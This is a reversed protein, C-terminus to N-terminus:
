IEGIYILNNGAFELFREVTKFLILDTDMLIYFGLHSTFGSEVLGGSPLMQLTKVDSNEVHKFIVKLNIDM